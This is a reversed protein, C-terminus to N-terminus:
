VSGIVNKLGLMLIVYFKSGSFGTSDLLGWGLVSEVPPFVSRDTITLVESPVFLALPSHPYPSLTRM